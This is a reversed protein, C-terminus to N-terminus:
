QPNPEIESNNPVLRISILFNGRKHGIVEFQASNDKGGKSQHRVAAGGILEATDPALNRAELPIRDTTGHVHVTLVRHEGPSLPSANAELDLAIFLLSIPTSKRKGCVIEMRASGPDIDTPPLAVLYVPSSALVIAPQGAITIQNADAEGCFGRGALEFRDALSAFRPSVTIEMSSSAAEAPTLVAVPIRGPRGALSAFIVGPNLPAVFLARGTVDTTM